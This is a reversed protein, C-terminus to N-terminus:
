TAMSFMLLLPTMHAQKHEMAESKECWELKLIHTVTLMHKGWQYMPPDSVVETGHTDGM